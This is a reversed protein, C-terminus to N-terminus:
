IVFISSFYIRFQNTKWFNWSVKLNFSQHIIILYHFTSIMDMFMLDEDIQFYLSELQHQIKMYKYGIKYFQPM